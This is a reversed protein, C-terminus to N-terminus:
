CFATAEGDPRPFSPRSNSAPNDRDVAWSGRVVGAAEKIRPQVRPSEHLPRIDPLRKPGIVPVRAPPCSTVRSSAAPAADSRAPPLHPRPTNAHLGFQAGEAPSTESRPPGREASASHQHSGDNGPFLFLPSVGRRFSIWARHEQCTGGMAWHAQREGCAIAAAGPHVRHERIQVPGALRPSRGFPHAAPSVQPIDGAQACPSPSRVGMHEAMQRPLHTMSLRDAPSSNSASSRAARGDKRLPLEAAPGSGAGPPHPPVRCAPAAARGDPRRRRSAAQDTVSAPEDCCRRGRQESSPLVGATSASSGAVLPLTAAPPLDPPRHPQRSPPLSPGAPFAYSPSRLRRGSLRQAPSRCAPRSASGPRPATGPVLHRHPRDRSDTREARQLSSAALPGGVSNGDSM